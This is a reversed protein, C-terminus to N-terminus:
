EWPLFAVTVQIRIVPRKQLFAPRNTKLEATKAWANEGNPREFLFCTQRIRFMIQRIQSVQVHQGFWSFYRIKETDDLLYWIKRVNQLGSPRTDLAILHYFTKCFM